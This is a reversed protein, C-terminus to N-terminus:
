PRVKEEKLGTSEPSSTVSLAGSDESKTQSANTTNQTTEDDGSSQFLRQYKEMWIAEISENKEVPRMIKTERQPALAAANQDFKIPRQPPSICRSRDGGPLGDHQQVAKQSIGAEGVRRKNSGQGMASGELM